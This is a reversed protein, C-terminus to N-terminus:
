SKLTDLEIKHWEIADDEAAILIRDVKMSVTFSLIMIITLAAVLKKWM